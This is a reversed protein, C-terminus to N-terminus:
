RFTNGDNVLVGQVGDIMILLASRGNHEFDIIRLITVAQDANPGPV